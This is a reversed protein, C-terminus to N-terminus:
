YFLQRQMTIERSIYNHVYSPLIEYMDYHHM